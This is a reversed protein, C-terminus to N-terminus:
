QKPPLPLKGAMELKVMRECWDKISEKRLVLKAKFKQFQAADDLRATIKPKDDESTAASQSMRCLFAM